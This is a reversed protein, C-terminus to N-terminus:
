YSVAAAVRFFGGQMSLPGLDIGAVRQDGGVNPALNLREDAVWGYGGDAQLWLRPTGASGPTGSWALWAYGASFDAAFLWRSKSLLPTGGMSPASADEIQTSLVAVGPAARLFGYGWRGFHVRGELPVNLRHMTLSTTDGRATAGSGGYDWGIGSAFSYHGRAFLTRSAMMSVQALYDQTSF